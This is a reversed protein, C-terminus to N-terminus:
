NNTKSFIIGNSGNRVLSYIPHDGDRFLVVKNGNNDAVFNISSGTEKVFGRIKEINLGTAMAIRCTPNAWYARQNIGKHLPTQGMDHFQFPYVIKSSFTQKLQSIAWKNTTSYGGLLKQTKM